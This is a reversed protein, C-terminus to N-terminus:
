CIRMARAYGSIAQAANICAQDMVM